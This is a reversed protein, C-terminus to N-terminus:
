FDIREDKPSINEFYLTVTQDRDLGFVSQLVFRALTTASVIDQKLDVTLFERVKSGSTPRTSLEFSMKSLEQKLLEYYKESWPAMPFDFQLGVHGNKLVYKSFQIFLPSNPVEIVLFGGNFGRTFLAEFYRSLDRQPVVKHKYHKRGFYWFCTLAVATLVFLIFFLKM